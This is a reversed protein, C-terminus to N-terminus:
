THLQALEGVDDRHGLLRAERAGGRTLVDGLGADARLHPPELGLEALRQEVAPGPGDRRGRGPPRHQGERAGGEGAGRADAGGGVLQRAQDAAADGDPHHRGDAAPKGVREGAEVGLVRADLDGEQLVRRVRQEVADARAPEVERQGAERARRRRLELRRGDGVFLEDGGNM